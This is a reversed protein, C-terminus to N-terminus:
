NDASSFGKEVARRIEDETVGSLLMERALRTIKDLKGKAENKIVEAADEAIFCGRGPVSRAIGKSDLESYAKQITNPNVSLETSLSRVSPLQDGPSIIGLTILKEVQEIIQEYVPTRSMGDIRFMLVEM